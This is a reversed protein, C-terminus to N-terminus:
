IPVKLSRWPIRIVDGSIEAAHLPEDEVRIDFARCELLFPPAVTPGTAPHSEMSHSFSDFDITPVRSGEQQPPAMTVSEDTSEWSM